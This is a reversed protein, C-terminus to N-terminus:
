NWGGFALIKLTLIEFVLIQFTLIRFGIDQLQNGLNSFDQSDIERVALIRFIFSIDGNGFLPYLYKKGIVHV